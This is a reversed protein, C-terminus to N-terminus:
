KKAPSASPAPTQTPTVGPPYIYEPAPVFNYFRKGDFAWGLERRWLEALALSGAALRKVILARQAAAAKKLNKRGLKKDVKLVKDLNTNSESSLDEVIKLISANANKAQYSKWQRAALKAAECEVGPFSEDVLAGEFFGHVGKQETMQGDYNETTHLPQALDGVYHGMTGALVFWRAQTAHRQETTLDAKKLEETTKALLDAFERVRWFARGASNPISPFATDFAIRDLEFPKQSKDSPLKKFERAFIEMDM